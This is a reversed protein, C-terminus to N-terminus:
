YFQNSASKKTSHHGTDERYKSYHHSQKRVPRSDSEDPFNVTKPPKSRHGVAPAKPRGYYQGADLEANDRKSARLGKPKGHSQHLGPHLDTSAHQHMADGTHSHHPRMRTAHDLDAAYGNDESDFHDQHHRHKEKKREKHPVGEYDQSHYPKSALAPQNLSRRHHRGGHIMNPHNYTHVTQDWEKEFMESEDLIYVLYKM